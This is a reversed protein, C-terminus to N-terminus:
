FFTLLKLSYKSVSCLAMFYITWFMRSKLCEMFTPLDEESEENLEISTTIRTTSVTQNLMVNRQLDDEATDVESEVM